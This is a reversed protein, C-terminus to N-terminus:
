SDVLSRGCWYARLLDWLFPIMSDPGAIGAGAVWSIEHEEARVFYRGM